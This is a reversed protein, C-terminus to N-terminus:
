RIIKPIPLKHQKRNLALFVDIYQVGDKNKRILKRFSRFQLRWFSDNLADQVAQEILQKTYGSRILKDYAVLSHQMNDSSIQRDIELKSLHSFYKKYLYKINEEYQIFNDTKNNKSTKATQENQDLNSGDHINYITNTNTSILTNDPCIEDTQANKDNNYFPILFTKKFKNLYKQLKEIEAIVKEAEVQVVEKHYPEGYM